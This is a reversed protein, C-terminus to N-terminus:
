RDTKSPSYDYSEKVANKIREDDFRWIKLSHDMGCSIIRNGEMNFDQFYHIHQTILEQCKVTIKSKLILLLSGIAQEPPCSVSKPLETDLRTFDHKPRTFFKAIM